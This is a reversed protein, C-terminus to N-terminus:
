HFINIILKIKNQIKTNCQQMVTLIIIIIINPSYQQTHLLQVLHFLMPITSPAEKGIEAALGKIKRKEQIQTAKRSQTQKQKKNIETETQKKTHTM